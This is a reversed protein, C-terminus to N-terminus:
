DRKGHEKLTKNMLQENKSHKETFKRNSSSHRCAPLLIFVLPLLLLLLAPPLPYMMIIVFFTM